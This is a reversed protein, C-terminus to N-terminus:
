DEKIYHKEILKYGRRTYLHELEEPYSDTLHVMAPIYGKNEAWLEFHKLLRIGGGRHNKDVLWYTEVAIKRPTHLDDGVVCGLGGIMKGDNDELIFLTAVGKNMLNIYKDRTHEVDVKVFDTEKEFRKMFRAINNTDSILAERIM